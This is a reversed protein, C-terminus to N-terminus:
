LLTEVGSTSVWANLKDIAKEKKDKPIEKLDDIKSLLMLLIKKQKEIEKLNKSAAMKLEKLEM